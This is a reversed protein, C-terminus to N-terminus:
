RRKVGVNFRALAQVTLIIRLNAIPKRGSSSNARCRGERLMRFARENRDRDAARKIPEPVPHAAYLNLSLYPLNGGLAHPGVQWRDTQGSARSSQPLAIRAFM